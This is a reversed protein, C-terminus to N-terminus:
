GAQQSTGLWAQYNRQQEETPQRVPVIGFNAASRPGLKIDFTRLDDFRFITLHVIDGPGKEALRALLFPQSARMNDVAVIQDGANLGQDYAPSGASVRTVMLREGQQFLDAGFFAM